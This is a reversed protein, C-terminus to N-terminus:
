AYVYNGKKSKHRFIKEAFRELSEAMDKPNNLVIVHNANPIIELESNKIRKHLEKAIATPFISDNKGQVVLTPVAIRKLLEEGDFSLLSSCILLYSKLSTHRIDSFLRGINIDGTGIFNDFNVHGPTGIPLAYKSIRAFINKFVPSDALTGNIFPVKYGTNVLVLGKAKTQYKGQLLLSVIGGLCHGVIIFEKLKEQQILTLIDQAFSDMAYFKENDGRQSLGHGRLDLAVTSYGKTLLYDREKDWATIDGGLGHCLILVPASSSANSVEYYIDAEDFSSFTRSVYQRLHRM